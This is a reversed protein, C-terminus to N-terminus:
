RRCVVHINENDSREQREGEIRTACLCLVIHNFTQAFLMIDRDYIWLVGVVSVIALRLKFLSPGVYLKAAVSVCRLQAM